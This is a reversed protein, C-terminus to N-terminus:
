VNQKHFVEKQLWLSWKKSEWKGQSNRALEPCHYWTVPREYPPWDKVINQLIHFLKSELKKETTPCLRFLAVLRQGWEKDEVSALFIEQIPIHAKLAANLLKIELDEKYVIEGGSNIATDIRGLVKLKGGEKEDILDAADGSEWWGENNTIPEFKGNIFRAKALRSTKVELRKDKGLRLQVDKLAISYKSKGLLFDEPSQIAIMATTETAGYCPALRIKLKRATSALDDPLLAGGLWIISFSQLWKIGAADKILRRLQTPVLSTIRFVKEIHNSVRFKQELLKPDKMLSPKISIYRSGWCESRWWAMLGSIHNLPLTNFIQCDKTDLGHARLWNASASASQNLHSYPILCQHPGKISGGSNIIIGEGLPVDSQPIFTKKTKEAILQIWLRKEIADTIKALTDQPSEPHCVISRIEKM